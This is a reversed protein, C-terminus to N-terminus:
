GPARWGHPLGFADERMNAYKVYFEKTLDKGVKESANLLEYLHCDGSVPIVREAGLLYVFRRLLSEDQAPSVTDFREYTYQDAGKFYLRSQRISTVIIWDCPLNIAYRHGQDVASMKRGAHPRDLPDKPGKGEIAVVFRNNGPRFDGLVADAFMGDVEVYKERGFTYRDSSEVASVYGLLRCFIDGLFEPLIETEKFQDARGSSLMEAWKSVRERAPEMAQPLRFGALLPRVVEPRFLPKAEVPV